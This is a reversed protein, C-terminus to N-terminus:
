GKTAKSKAEVSKVKAVIESARKSVVGTKFFNVTTRPLKEPLTRGVVFGADTKKAKAAMKPRIVKATMSAIISSM